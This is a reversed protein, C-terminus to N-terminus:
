DPPERALTDKLQQKVSLLVVASVLQRLPFNSVARYPCRKLFYVACEHLLILILIM